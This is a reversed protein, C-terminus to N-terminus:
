FQPPPGVIKKLPKDEFWEGWHHLESACVLWGWGMDGYRFSAAGNVQSLAMEDHGNITAIAVRQIGRVSFIESDEGCRMTSRSGHLLASHTVEHNSTTDSPSMTPLAALMLSLM